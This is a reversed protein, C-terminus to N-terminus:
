SDSPMAELIRRLYEAHEQRVYHWPANDKSLFRDAHQRYIQQTGDSLFLTIKFSDGAIQEPDTYAQGRQRLLHLYNLIVGMKAQNTYLIQLHQQGTTGTVEISTVVRPGTSQAGVNGSCGALILLCIIVGYWVIRKKM